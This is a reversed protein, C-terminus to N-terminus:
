IQLTLIEILNIEIAGLTALEGQLFDYSYDERNKFVEKHMKDLIDQVDGLIEKAIELDKKDKQEM